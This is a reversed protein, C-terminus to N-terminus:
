EASRSLSAEGLPYRPWTISEWRVHLRGKGSRSVIARRHTSGCSDYDGKILAAEFIPEDNKIDTLYWEARCRRGPGDIEAVIEYNQVTMGSPIRIKVSGSPQEPRDPSGKETGSWEGVYAAPIAQGSVENEHHIKRAGAAILPGFIFALILVGLCGLCGGCGRSDRDDDLLAGLFLWNMLGLWLVKRSPNPLGESSM